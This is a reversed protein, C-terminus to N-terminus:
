ENRMAITPSKRVHKLAHLCVIIITLGGTLIVALFYTDIEVHVRYAFHRLWGDMLFTSLPISLIISLVMVKLYDKNLTALIDVATAGLV